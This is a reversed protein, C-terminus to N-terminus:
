YQMVLPGTICSGPGLTSAIRDLLTALCGQWIGGGRSIAM